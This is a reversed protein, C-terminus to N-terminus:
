SPSCMYVQPPNMKINPLVLVTIYLKFIFYILFFFLLLCIDPFFFFFFHIELRLALLSWAWSSSIYRNLGLPLFFKGKRSSPHGKKNQEPRSSILHLGGVNPLVIQEVESEFRMLFGQCVCRSYHRVLCRPVQQGLDLQCMFHVIVHLFLGLKM